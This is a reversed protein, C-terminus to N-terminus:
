ERHFGVWTSLHHTHAVADVPPSVGRWSVEVQDLDYFTDGM